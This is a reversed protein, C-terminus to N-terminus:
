ASPKAFHETISQTLAEITYEAPECALTFGFKKATETTVPGISAAKVKAIVEKLEDDAFMGAFNSVTSSSTFTVMDVKGDRVAEMVADKKAQPRVTRYATVVDVQAGRKALEEPLVERAEEARPILVKKGKVDGITALIGEARFEDPVLVVRMGTAEVAEATKKGIACIKPGALERIDRGTERLRQLLYGVGNVSTFILWDYNGASSIAKDLADWSEPATTEITPFEIVSAGLEELKQSFGSAQARARTVIIRRGFLPKKEFWNLKGRLNVVEGVVILTPPAVKEREAIAAITELTGIWTQQNPMTGWRVLAVPTKPSRGHKMLNKTIDPLNKVGMYFVLTGIGTAIKDWQIATDDKTPDEHGTIFAMTSTCSRHTIPIGAYAPGAVGSTVGPVVEFAAGAEILEEAEEGGRGFVYPDGGKLRAITKGEKVRKVLLKNIEEQPLTHDGGKKGVYIIEADPRASELLRPNALYDYVIIDCTKILEMGRVTILGLDGPGAGILYVKGQKM